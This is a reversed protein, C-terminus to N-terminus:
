DEKIAFAISFHGKFRGDGEKKIHRIEAELDKTPTGKDRTYYKTRLTDGVKLSKLVESDERVLFCLPESDNNWIKFQHLYDEGTLSFELAYFQNLPIGSITGPEQFGNSMGGDEKIGEDNYENV